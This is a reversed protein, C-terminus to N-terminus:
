LWAVRSTQSLSVDGIADSDPSSRSTCAAQASAGIGSNHRRRDGSGDTVSHALVLGTMEDATMEDATM